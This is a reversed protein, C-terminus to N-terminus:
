DAHSILARRDVFGISSQHLRGFFIGGAVPEVSTIYADVVGGKDQYSALLNGAADYHNIFGAQRPKPLWTTPIHALINKILPYPWLSELLPDRASYMALWFSGDADRAIGDPFGSLHEVFIEQRNNDGLNIRNVRNAYSEVVLVSQGDASVAVGNAFALDSALLQVRNGVEQYSFLRGTAHGELADLMYHSLPWRQSADSFYITGDPGIDVDNVLQLPQGLYENVLVTLPQTKNAPDWRLLGKASDAILLRQQRDFSLGLPRGSTNFLVTWDPELACRRLINGNAVGTYRCGQQDIAVDEPGVANAPLQELTASQLRDVLRLHQSPLVIPQPTVAIADIPSSYQAWILIGSLALSSVLLLKIYTRM